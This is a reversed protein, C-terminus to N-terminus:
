KGVNRQTKFLLYNESVYLKAIPQNELLLTMLAWFRRLARDLGNISEAYTTKLNCINYAMERTIRSSHSLWLQNDCLKKAIESARENKDEESVPTGSNEHTKWNVFKYKALYETVLNQSLASANLANGIEKGDISRLLQIDTWDPQESKKIREQGRRKIDDILKLIAQAPMFRGNKGPVQPDIPGIYASDTMVIENGSLSFITGASMAMYPLLFAVDSYKERIKSVFHAVTEASGGPTVLVIDVSDNLPANRLLELFPGDDSNDISNLSVLPNLVNAIYCIIPRKRCAYIEQLSKRIELGFDVQVNQQGLISAYERGDEMIDLFSTIPKVSNNHINNDM